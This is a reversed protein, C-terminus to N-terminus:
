AATAAWRDYREVEYTKTTRMQAAIGLVALGALMVLWFPNDDLAAQLPNEVTAAPDLDGLLFLFTGVVGAAGAFATAIIVVLKQLNAVLVGFAFLVAAVMAIIWTVVDLDLGILGLISAVLSFAFGGSVIAVAAVWFLYSLGAFLLGVFFGVIWSTTTSLFGDGFLAQVTQAGFSIGFFFGWIPLLVLFLRYGAFAVITSFLLVITAAVVTALFSDSM